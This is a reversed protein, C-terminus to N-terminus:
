VRGKGENYQRATQQIRIQSQQIEKRQKPPLKRLDAEIAVKLQQANIRKAAIEAKVYDQVAVSLALELLREDLKAKGSAEAVEAVMSIIENAGFVKISDQVEVGADRAAADLRQMIMVTANAVRQVPNDGELMSVVSDRTEKAHILTMAKAVYQEFDRKYNAAQSPQTPNM